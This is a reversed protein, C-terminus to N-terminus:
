ARVPAASVYKLQVSVKDWMNKLTDLSRRMRLVEKTVNREVSDRVQEIGSRRERQLLCEESAALSNRVDDMMKELLRKQDQVM